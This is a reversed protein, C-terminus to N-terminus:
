PALRVEAIALGEGDTERDDPHPKPNGFGVERKPGCADFLPWTERQLYDYYAGQPREKRERCVFLLAAHSHYVIDVSTAQVDAYAKELAGINEPTVPHAGGVAWHFLDNANTYFQPQSDPTEFRWFLDGDTHLEMDDALRLLRLIFSLLAADDM